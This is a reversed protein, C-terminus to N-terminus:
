NYKQTIKTSKKLLNEMIEALWKSGPYTDLDTEYFLDSIFHIWVSGSELSKFLAM